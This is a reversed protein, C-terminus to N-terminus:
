RVSKRFWSPIRTLEEAVDPNTRQIPLKAGRVMDHAPVLLEGETLDDGRRLLGVLARIRERPIEYTGFPKKNWFEPFSPDIHTPTLLQRAEPIPGARFLEVSEGKPVRLEDLTRQSM